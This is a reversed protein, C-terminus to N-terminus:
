KGLCFESFIRDLLDERATEGTIEGLAEWAAYLDICVVDWSWGEQWAALGEEVSRLARELAARHRERLVVPEGPERWARGGLVTDRVIRALDELGERTKASVVIWPWEGAWRALRERDVQEVADVKNGVVIV